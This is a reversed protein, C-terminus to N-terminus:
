NRIKKLYSRYNRVEKKARSENFYSSSFLVFGECKKAKLKKIQAVINNNKKVWGRDSRDGVGCRYLALGIYMPTDNTNLECWDNLRNTYMKVTSNGIRYQDSWYIQPIIYDIYGDHSLWTELDCGLSEAYELNGAPSIGFQLDKGYSKVTKYVKKVMTNIVKKRRAVSVKRFQAGSTKSPYFYDDFHIGDVDYNKLIERIIRVIRNTSSTSGPNYIVGMKKRYPNLWAHFSLGTDHATEVLIEMPDYDPASKFMYKSWNLYKSPYIADNCPVVHFYVTNIGDARFSKFLRRANKRFTQEPKNYLGASKYDGFSVWVGRVETAAATTVASPTAPASSAVAATPHSSPYVSIDWLMCVALVIILGAIIASKKYFEKQNM